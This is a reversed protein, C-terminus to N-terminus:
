SSSGANTKLTITITATERSVASGSACISASNSLTLAPLPSCYSIEGPPACGGPKRHKKRFLQQWVATTTSFHMQYRSFALISSDQGIPGTVSLAPKAPLRRGTPGCPKREHAATQVPPREGVLVRRNNGGNGPLFCRLNKQSCRTTGRFCPREDRNRASPKNKQIIVFLLM